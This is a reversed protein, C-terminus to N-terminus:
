TEKTTSSCRPCPFVPCNGVHDVAINYDCRDCSYKAVANFIVNYDAAIDKALGHINAMEDYLESYHKAMTSGHKRNARMLM